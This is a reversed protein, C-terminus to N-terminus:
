TSRRYVVKGGVITMEAKVDLIEEPPANFIDRSLVVLDALKGKEISGKRDEEFSAYAGNLTYARVADVLSCSQSPGLSQGKWTNRVVASYLGIMPNGVSVPWDSNCSARIGSEALSRLPYIWESRESGLSNRYGEGIDYVFGVSVSPVVGLEKIRRIQTSTCLGCHEIRHRHDKVPSAELAAEIADLAVDIARDGEAHICIRLGAANSAMVKRRLNDLDITLLGHNENRRGYPEYLAATESRLMGDVALKVGVIRLMSNGFGTRIGLSTLQELYDGEFPNAVPPMLGVRIPLHGEALLEQYAQVVDHDSWADHISTVGWSALRECAVRLGEKLKEYRQPPIIRKVIEQARNRLVGTPEGNPRRDIIGHKPDQTEKSIGAQTLAKSNCVAIHGCTQVLFVPNSPSAQDLERKDPHRRELLREEDYGWGLVWEGESTASAKRKVADLCAAMSSPQLTKLDIKGTTLEGAMSPHVHTDIFGPLVIRGALDITETESGATGLAESDSGVLAIKGNKLAVATALSDNHDMTHIVGGFLVTDAHLKAM